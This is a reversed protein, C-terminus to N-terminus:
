MRGILSFVFQLVTLVGLMVFFNKYSALGSNFMLQDKAQIGLKIRKSGKILFSFLIAAIGGGFILGVILVIWTGSGTGSLAREADSMMQYVVIMYLAFLGICILALIGLLRSWRATELIQNEGNQDVEFNNLISENNEM